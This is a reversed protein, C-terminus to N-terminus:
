QRIRNAAPPLKFINRREIDKSLPEGGDIVDGVANIIRGITEDGVPVEVSKGSTDVITGKHLEREGYINLCEVVRANLLARTLLPTDKGNRAVLVENVAPMGDIDDFEVTVVLDKLTRISGQSM